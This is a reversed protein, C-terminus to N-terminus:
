ITDNEEEELLDIFKDAERRSKFVYTIIGDEVTMWGARQIPETVKKKWLWWGKEREVALEPQYKEVVYGWEVYGDEGGAFARERVRYKSEM